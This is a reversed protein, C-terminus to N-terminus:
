RLLKEMWARFIKTQRLTTFGTPLQMERLPFEITEPVSLYAQDLELDTSTKITQITKTSLEIEIIEPFLTPSSAVTLLRNGSLSLNGISTYPLDLDELEGTEPNLLALQDLNKESYCCIIKGSDLFEYHHM